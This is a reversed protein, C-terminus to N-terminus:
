KRGENYCLAAALVVRKRFDEHKKMKKVRLNVDIHGMPMVEKEYFPGIPRGQQRDKRETYLPFRRQGDKTSRESNESEAKM